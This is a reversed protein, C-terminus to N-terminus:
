DERTGPHNVCRVSNVTRQRSKEQTNVQTWVIKGRGRFSAYGRVGRKSRRNAIYLSTTPAGSPGCEDSGRNSMGLSNGQDRPVISFRSETWPNNKGVQGGGGIRLATDGSIKELSGEATAM